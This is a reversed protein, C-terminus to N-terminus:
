IIIFSLNFVKDLPIISTLGKIIGTTGNPIIKPTIPISNPDSHM